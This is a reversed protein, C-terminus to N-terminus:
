GLLWVATFVSIHFLMAVKGLARWVWLVGDGSMKLLRLQRCLIHQWKIPSIKELNSLNHRSSWPIQSPLASVANVWSRSEKLRRATIQLRARVSSPRPKRCVHQGDRVSAPSCSTSDSTSCDGGEEEDGLDNRWSAYPCRDSQRCM